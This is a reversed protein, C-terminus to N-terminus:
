PYSAMLAGPVGARDRSAEAWNGVGAKHRQTEPSGALALFVIVQASTLSPPYPNGPPSVRIPDEPVPLLPEQLYELSVGQIPRFLAVALGLARHSSHQEHVQGWLHTVKM